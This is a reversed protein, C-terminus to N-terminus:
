EERRREEEGGRRREEEEELVASPSVLQLRRLNSCGSLGEGFGRLGGQWITLRRGIGRERRNIRRTRRRGIGRERRNIRRRERGDEGGGGGGGARVAGLGLKNRALNLEELERCQSM